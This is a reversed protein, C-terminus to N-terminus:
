KPVPRTRVALCLAGTDLALAVHMGYLPLFDAQTVGAHGALLVTIAVGPVAGLQRTAQNVASGVVYQAAPLGAV